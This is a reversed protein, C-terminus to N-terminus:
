EVFHDVGGDGILRLEQLEVDIGVSFLGLLNNLVGLLPTDLRQKNSNIRRLESSSGLNTPTEGKREFSAASIVSYSMLIFNSSGPDFTWSVSTTVRSSPAARAMLAKMSGLREHFSKAHNLDTVFNGIKSFPTCHQSTLRPRHTRSNKSIHTQLISHHSNLSTHLTNDQPSDKVGPHKM